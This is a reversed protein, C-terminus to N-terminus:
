LDMSRGPVWSQAGVPVILFRGLLADESDFPVDHGDILLGRWPHKHDWVRMIHGLYVGEDCAGEVRRVLSAEEEEQEAARGVVGDVRRADLEDGRSVVGDSEVGVEVAVALDAEADQPGPRARCPAWGLADGGNEDGDLGEHCLVRVVVLWAEFLLSVRPVTLAVVLADAMLGHPHGHTVHQIPLHSTWVGQPTHHLLREQLVVVEILSDAFLPKMQLALVHLVRKSLLPATEIVLTQLRPQAGGLPPHPLLAGRLVVVGVGVGVGARGARVGVAM